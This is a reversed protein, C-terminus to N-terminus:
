LSARPGATHGRPRPRCVEPGPRGGVPAEGLRAADARGGPAGRTEQGDPQGLRADLGAAAEGGLVGRGLRGGKGWLRWSLSYIMSFSPM